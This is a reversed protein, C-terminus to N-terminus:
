FELTYWLDRGCSQVESRRIPRLESITAQGRGGLASLSKAGGILKPAVYIEARDVLGADWFATLVGAGGEVMLNTSGRQHLLSLLAALSVRGGQSPLVTVECGLREFQRRRRTPAADTTAIITPVHSASTVLKAKMSTQLRSDLIVRTATRRPRVLRATLDPDDARVTGVGVLIADVRARLRHAQKRAAPSTIWKSDGTHTAIKGDMSQAWKLTIFPRGELQFTRFPAILRDADKKLLGLDVRVGAARLRRIGKGAVLPNPDRTAVIVRKIGAAILADACPPTKGHHACPELTVYCTAGKTRAAAMRLANAEAHSRGFKRHFGEGLVHAGKIIVCGVMPNPEVFGEGRLALQLARQM